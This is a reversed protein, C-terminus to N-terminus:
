ASVMSIVHNIVTATSNTSPTISGIVGYPALEEMMFGHDGTKAHTQLDEPGPTKDIVLLNKIEKHDVRGIKTDKVAL